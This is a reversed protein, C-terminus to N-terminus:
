SRPGSSTRVVLETPVLTREAPVPGGDIETLLARVAAEGVRTFHQRVTTLPPWFNASEPADDYGVVSVDAPVARGTEHLARLLGLAMRDNSAFVATVSEDTVLTRGLDYGSEATWDGVLVDPVGAGRAVLTDHWAVRRREAAFSERPGSIHWVTEHGLDLLHETALRAGLAQDNDVVPYPYDASSDVVVVPLGTPLALETEGLRHTEILIVVGDVAHEALRLFAGSVDSQTASQVTIVTLSYGADAAVSAVADLTRTNGYSSLSFMIVGISRFRGSRLARAASNPRYGLRDMAARVRARTEPDVNTRGNAVRSVTQGSVGAMAAVDAMSVERRRPRADVRTAPESEGM